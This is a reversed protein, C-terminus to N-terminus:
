RVVRAPSTQPPLGALLRELTDAVGRWRDPGSLTRLRAIVEHLMRAATATDLMRQIREAERTLREPTDFPALGPRPAALLGDSSQNLNTMVAQWDPGRSGLESRILSLLFDYSRLNALRPYDILLEVRQRELFDFVYRLHESPLTYLTVNHPHICTNIHLYMRRDEAFRFVEPLEFWNKRHETVNLMVELGTKARLALLYDVNEYFLDSRLGIRIEGHLEPHVADMSIAITKFNLTELFHRAKPHFSVANSNVYITCRANVRTLIEFIRLHEKVLFPEGGYFEIHDVHPLIEEMDRFFREGYMSPALPLHDRERRIRSSTMGDCMICALNCTSNLRFILRKPYAPFADDNAGGDFQEVAFVHSGSGTECQRICHRCNQEDLIYDSMETRYRKYIEGRWVDLVSLDESMHAVATHSHNCLRIAGTADFDMSLFPAYCVSRLKRRRIAPRSRDYDAVTLPLQNGSRLRIHRNM